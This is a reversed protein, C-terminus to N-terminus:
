KPTQLTNMIKKFGDDMEIGTNKRNSKKNRVIEESISGNETGLDNRLKFQVVESFRESLKRWTVSAEACVHVCVCVWM